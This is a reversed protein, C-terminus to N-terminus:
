VIEAVTLRVGESKAALLCKAGSFIATNVRAVSLPKERMLWEIAFLLSRRTREIIRWNAGSVTKCAVGVIAQRM